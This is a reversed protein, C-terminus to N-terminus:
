NRIFPVSIDIWSVRYWHRCKPENMYTFLIYNMKRNFQFTWPLRNSTQLYGIGYLKTMEKQLSDTKYYFFITNNIVVSILRQVHLRMIHGLFLLYSWSLTKHRHIHRLFLYSFCWWEDISPLVNWSVYKVSYNISIYKMMFGNLKSWLSCHFYWFYPLPFICCISIGFM